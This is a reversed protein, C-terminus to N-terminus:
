RGEPSRGEAKFPKILDAAVTIGESTLADIKNRILAYAALAPMAVVLGWFTTILATGIGAALTAPDPKGGSAVLAEFAEIMGYVTGFLGIMPALNGVVNLYEVPRLLRRTEAEGADEIVRAMANYGFTAEGLAASMLRGLYSRDQAAHEIASRFRKEALLAKFRNVSAVPILVTRRCDIFLKIAFSISVFSMLLLLWILAIGLANGTWFFQQFLSTSRPTAPAAGPDQALCISASAMLVVLVIAGRAKTVIVSQM